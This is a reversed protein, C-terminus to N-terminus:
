DWIALHKQWHSGSICLFSCSVTHTQTHKHSPPCTHCSLSHLASPGLLFAPAVILAPLEGPGGTRNQLECWPKTLASSALQPCSSHSHMKTLERKLRSALSTIVSSHSVQKVKLNFSSINTVNLRTLPFTSPTLPTSRSLMHPYPSQLLKSSNLKGWRAKHNFAFNLQHCLPTKLAAKTLFAALTVEYSSM